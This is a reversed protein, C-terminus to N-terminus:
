GRRDPLMMATKIEHFQQELRADVEGFLTEILAGGRDVSADEEFAINKVGDFGKIFDAKIEMIYRFDEPNLHIKMNERDVINRIAERLVGQIVERNTTVELQIVKEAMALALQLIQGEAGELAKKKTEAIELILRSLSQLPKLNENRQMEIGQQIGESVGRAHAEQEAVRIREACSAELEAEQVAHDRASPVPHGGPLEKGGKEPAPIVKVEEAKIVKRHSSQM